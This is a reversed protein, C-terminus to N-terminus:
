RTIWNGIPNGWKDLVMKPLREEWNDSRIESIGVYVQWKQPRSHWPPIIETDNVGVAIGTVYQNELLSNVLRKTWITPKIMGLSAPSIKDTTGSPALLIIRPSTRNIDRDLTDKIANSFNKKIKRAGDYGTHARDTNPMTKLANSFRLIGSLTWKSHTIAPGLITYIDSQPIGFIRHLCHAILPLNFWTAHNSLILIDKESKISSKMQNFVECVNDINQVFWNFVLKDPLQSVLFNICASQSIPLIINPDAPYLVKLPDDIRLDKSKSWKKLLAQTLWPISYRYEIDWWQDLHAQVLPTIINIIDDVSRGSPKLVNKWESFTQLRRIEESVWDKVINKQELEMKMIDVINIAYLRSLFYHIDINM